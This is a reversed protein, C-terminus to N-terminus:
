DTSFSPLRVTLTKPERPSARLLWNGPKAVSKQGSVEGAREEETSYSSAPLGGFLDSMESPVLDDGLVRLTLASRRLSAMEFCRYEQHELNFIM